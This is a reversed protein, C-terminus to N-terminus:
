EHSSPVRARRHIELEKYRNHAIGKANICNYATAGVMPIPKFKHFQIRDLPLNDALSTPSESQESLITSGASTADMRPSHGACEHEREDEEGINCAAEDEVDSEWSDAPKIERALQDLGLIPNRYDKDRRV